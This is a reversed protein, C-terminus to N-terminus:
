HSFYHASMVKEADAGSGSASIHMFLPVETLIILSDWVLESPDSVEGAAAAAVVAAPFEADPRAVEIPSTRPAAPKTAAKNYISQFIIVM